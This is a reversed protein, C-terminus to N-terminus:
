KKRSTEAKTPKVDLDNVVDKVGEVSRAREGIQQKEAQSPAKGTITVVGANSSFKLDLNDRSAEDSKFMGDLRDEIRRDEDRTDVGEVKVENVVRGSTGVVENAVVEARQKEAEANVKGSLHLAHEDKNWNADVDKINADKLKDNVQKEYNPTNDNKACATVFPASCMLAAV